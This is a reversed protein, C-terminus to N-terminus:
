LATKTFVDVAVTGVTDTTTSWTGGWQADPDVITGTTVMKVTGVPEEVLYKIYQAHNNHAYNLWLRPWPQGVVLGTQQQEPPPAAKTPNGLGDLTDTAWVFIPETPIM